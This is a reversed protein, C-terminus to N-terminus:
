GGSVGARYVDGTLLRAASENRGPVRHQGVIREIVENGVPM